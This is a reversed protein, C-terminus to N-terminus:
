ACGVLFILLMKRELRAVARLLHKLQKLLFTRIVISRALGNFGTTGPCATFGFDTLDAGSCKGRVGGCAIACSISRAIRGAGSAM